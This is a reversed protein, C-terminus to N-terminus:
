MGDTTCLRIASGRLHAQGEKGRAADFITPSHGFRAGVGMFRLHSAEGDDKPCAAAWLNGYLWVPMNDPPESLNLSGVDPLAEKSAVHDLNADFVGTGAIVPPTDANWLTSGAPGSSGMDRLYTVDGKAGTEDIVTIVNFSRWHGRGNRVGCSNQYNSIAARLVLDCLGCTKASQELAKRSQHHPKAPLDEAQLEFWVISRCLDCYPSVAPPDTASAM